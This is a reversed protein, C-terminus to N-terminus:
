TEKPDWQSEKPRKPDKPSRQPRKLYKGKACTHNLLIQFWPISDLRPLILLTSFYIVKSKRLFKFLANMEKPECEELHLISCRRCKCGANPSPPSRSVSRNRPPSFGSDERSYFDPHLHNGATCPIDASKDSSKRKMLNLSFPSSDKRRRRFFSNKKKEPENSM